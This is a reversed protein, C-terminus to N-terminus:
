DIITDVRIYSIINPKPTEIENKLFKLFYKIVKLITKLNRNNNGFQLQIKIVEMPVMAFNCDQFNWCFNNNTNQNAIGTNKCGHIM